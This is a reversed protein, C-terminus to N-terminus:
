SIIICLESNYIIVMTTCLLFHINNTRYYLLDACALGIKKALVMVARIKLSDKTEIDVVMSIVMQSSKKRQITEKPTM